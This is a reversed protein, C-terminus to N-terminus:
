IILKGRSSSRRPTEYRYLTGLRVTEKALSLRMRNPTRATMATCSCKKQGFFRVCSNLQNADYLNQCNGKGIRPFGRYSYRLTFSGSCHPTAFDANEQETAALCRFTYEGM